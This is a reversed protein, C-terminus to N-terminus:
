RLNLTSIPERESCRSKRGINLDILPVTIRSLISNSINSNTSHIKRAGRWSGRSSSGNCSDSSYLTSFPRTRNEGTATNLTQRKTGETADEVCFWDLDDMLIVKTLNNAPLGRLVNVIYDTHIKIADIQELEILM